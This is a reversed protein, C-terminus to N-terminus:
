IGLSHWYEPSDEDIDNSIEQLKEVHGCEKCVVYLVNITRYPMLQRLIIALVGVKFFFSTVKALPHLLFLEWTMGEENLISACAFICMFCVFFSLVGAILWFIHDKKKQQVTNVIQSNNKSCKKCTM